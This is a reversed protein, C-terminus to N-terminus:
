DAMYKGDQKFKLTQPKLGLSNKDTFQIVRLVLRRLCFCYQYLFLILTGIIVYCLSIVHLKFVRCIILEEM